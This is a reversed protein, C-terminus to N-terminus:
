SKMLGEFSKLAEKGYGKALQRLLELNLAVGGATLARRADMLDTPGGAFCKMAIFDERGIFKLSQGRFPVEVVRVFAEPQM